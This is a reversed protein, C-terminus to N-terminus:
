RRKKRNMLLHYILLIIVFILTSVIIILGIELFLQGWNIYTINKSEVITIDDSLNSIKWRDNSWELIGLVFFVIGLLLFTFSVILIPIESRRTLKPVAVGKESSNNNSEICNYYIEDSKKKDVVFYEIPINLKKSIIDLNTISPESENNEWRLISKVNLYCESALKAKSYKREKRIKTLRQGEWM